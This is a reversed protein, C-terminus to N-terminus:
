EWGRQVGTPVDQRGPELGTGLWAALNRQDRDHELWYPELRMATGAALDTAFRWFLPAVEPAVGYVFVLAAGPAGSAVYRRLAAWLPVLDARHLNADDGGGEEEYTMPDLTFLWPIRLRDPCGLVGGDGTQGRWSSQAVAVPTGRWASRLRACKEQDVETIGGSLREAGVVVRMLEASNPYRNRTADTARYAAIVSAEGAREPRGVAELAGDLLRCARGPSAGRTDFAEFPAMGHTFAVHLRGAPDLAALRIATAVELAHQLFNGDNGKAM